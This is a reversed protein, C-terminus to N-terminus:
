SSLEIANKLRAIDLNGMTEIHCYMLPYVKNRHAAEVFDMCECKTLIGTERRIRTRCFNIINDKCGIGAIGILGTVFFILLSIEWDGQRATSGIMTSSLISPIRALTSISIFKFMSMETIGIVYTLMDKPTGPIFFLIFTVMAAKHSDQLWKWSHVAEKSFLFYLLRKGYRASLAFIIASAVICGTLCIVLGGVAGYLAGSLIEIPEGPIFAIVVQLIQIGLVILWGIVGARNIWGQIQDQYAPQSLRRVYPLLVVTLVIVFIAFIMCYGIIKIRTRKEM